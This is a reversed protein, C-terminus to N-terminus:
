KETTLVSERTNVLVHSATSVTEFHLDLLVVAGAPFYRFEGRM